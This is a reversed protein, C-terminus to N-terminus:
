VKDDRTLDKLSIVGCGRYKYNAVGTASGVIPGGRSAGQAGQPTFGVIDSRLAPAVNGRGFARTLQSAKTDIRYQARIWSVKMYSMANNKSDMSKPINVTNYAIDIHIRM